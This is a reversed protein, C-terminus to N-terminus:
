FLYERLQCIKEITDTMTKIKAYLPFDHKTTLITKGFQNTNESRNQGGGGWSLPFINKIVGLRMHM